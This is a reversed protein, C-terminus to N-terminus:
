FKASYYSLAHKLKYQFGEPKTSNGNLTKEMNPWSLSTAKISFFFFTYTKIAQPSWHLTTFM